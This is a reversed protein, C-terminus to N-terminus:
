RLLPMRVAAILDTLTTAYAGDDPSTPFGGLLDPTIVAGDPPALIQNASLVQTNFGANALVGELATKANTLGAHGSNGYAAVIQKLAANLQLAYNYTQATM